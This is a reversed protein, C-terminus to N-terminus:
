PFAPLDQERRHIGAQGQRLAFKGVEQLIPILVERHFFGKGLDGALDFFDQSEVLVHVAQFAHVALHGPLRVGEM